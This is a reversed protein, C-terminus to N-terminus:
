LVDKGQLHLADYCSEGARRGVLGNRQRSVIQEFGDCLIQAGTIRSAETGPQGLVHFNGKQRVDGVGALCVGYPDQVIKEAAVFWLREADRVDRGLGVEFIGQAGEGCASLVKFYGQEGHVRSITELDLM